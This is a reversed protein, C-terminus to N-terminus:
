FLNVCTVYYFVMPNANTGEREMMHKKAENEDHFAMVVVSENNKINHYYVLYIKEM